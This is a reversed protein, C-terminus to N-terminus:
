TYRKENYEHECARLKGSNLLDIVGRRSHNLKIAAGTVDLLPDNDM